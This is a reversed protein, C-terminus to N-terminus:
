SGLHGAGIPGALLDRVEEVQREDLEHEARGLHVAGVVRRPLHLQAGQQRDLGAAAGLIAAIARLRRM